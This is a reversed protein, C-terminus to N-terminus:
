IEPRIDSSIGGWIIIKFVTIGKIARQVIFLLDREFVSITNFFSQTM